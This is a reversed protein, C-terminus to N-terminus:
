AYAAPDLSGHVYFLAGASKARLVHAADHPACMADGWELVEIGVFLQGGLLVVEPQTVDSPQEFSAGPAPTTPALRSRLAALTSRINPKVTGLPSHTQSAIEEHTIGRAVSFIHSTTADYLDVLAKQASLVIRAVLAALRENERPGSQAVTRLRPPPEAATADDQSASFLTDLKLASADICCPTADSM